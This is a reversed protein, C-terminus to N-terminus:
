STKKQGRKNPTDNMYGLVCGCLVGKYVCICRLTIAHSFGTSRPYEKWAKEGGESFLDLEGNKIFEDRSPM